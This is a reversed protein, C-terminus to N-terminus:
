WCRKGKKKLRPPITIGSGSSVEENSALKPSSSSTNTNLTTSTAPQAPAQSQPASFDNELNDFFDM